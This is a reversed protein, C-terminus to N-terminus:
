CGGLAKALDLIRKQNDESLLNLYVNLLEQADANVKLQEFLEGFGGVDTYPEIIDTYGMLWAPNVNLTQSLILLKDRRPIVKGTIYQSLDNRGLKISYKRCLPQAKCLIDRQKLNKDHMLKKLRISFSDM